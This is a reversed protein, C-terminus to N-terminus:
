GFFFNRLCREFSDLERPMWVPWVRQIENFSHKLVEVFNMTVPTKSIVRRHHAAKSPKVSHGDQNDTLL